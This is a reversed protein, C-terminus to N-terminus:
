KESDFYRKKFDFVDMRILRKRKPLAQNILNILSDFSPLYCNDIIITKTSGNFHFKFQWDVGDLWGSSYLSENYNELIQKTYYILSDHQNITLRKYSRFVNLGFRTEKFVKINRNELKYTCTPGEPLVHQKIELSLSTNEQGLLNFTLFLNFIICLNIKIYKM